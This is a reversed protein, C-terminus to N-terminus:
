RNMGMTTTPNLMPHPATAHQPQPPRPHQRLRDNIQRAILDLRAEEANPVAAEQRGLTRRKRALAAHEAFEPDTALRHATRIRLSARKFKALLDPPTPGDIRPWSAEKRLAALQPKTRRRTFFRAAAADDAKRQATTVRRVRRPPLGAATARKEGDLRRKKRALIQERNAWYYARKKERLQAAHAVYYTHNEERVAAPNARRRDRRRSNEDDRVKERWRRQSAARGARYTEPDEALKRYHRERMKQRYTDANAKYHARKSAKRKQAKARRAQARQWEAQRREPNAANYANHHERLREANRQRWARKYTRERDAPSERYVPAHGQEGPEPGPEAPTFSPEDDTM